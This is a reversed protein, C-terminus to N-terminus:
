LSQLVFVDIIVLTEHLTQSSTTAQEEVAVNQQADLESKQRAQSWPATYAVSNFCM